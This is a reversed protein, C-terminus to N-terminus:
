ETVPGSNDKVTQPLVFVDELAFIGLDLSAVGMSLSFFVIILVSRPAPHKKFPQFNKLQELLEYLNKTGFGGNVSERSGAM